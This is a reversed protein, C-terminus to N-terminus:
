FDIAEKRSKINLKAYINSVHSKVTSIGINYEESIEKNSKGSQILQFIKREQVSLTQLQKNHMRNGRTLYRQLLLGFAFFGVGILIYWVLNSREDRNLISRISQFYTSDEGEWKELYNEYFLQNELYTSEFDSHHLAYLSVIPHSSSDAVHRLKDNITRSAFEKNVSLKRLSDESDLIRNIERLDTNPRYGSIEFEQIPQVTDSSTIRIQSTRNAIFFLHNEDLGGIILSAEPAGKKSIHVRYLNDEEPLFETAFAFNGESDLEAQAIIMDNSMTFMDHFTPIHSLYVVPRWITDLQLKGGIRSSYSGDQAQMTFGVLFLCLGTLTKNPLIKCLDIM